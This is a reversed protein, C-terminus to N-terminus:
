VRLATESPPDKVVVALNLSLNSIHPFTRQTSPWPTLGSVGRRCYRSLLARQKPM